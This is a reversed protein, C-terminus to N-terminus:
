NIKLMLQQTVLFAINIRVQREINRVISREIVEYYRRHKFNKCIVDNTDNYLFQWMSGGNFISEKYKM